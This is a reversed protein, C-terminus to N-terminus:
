GLMANVSSVLSKRQNYFFHLVVGNMLMGIIGVGSQVLWLHSFKAKGHILLNDDMFSFVISIHTQTDLYMSISLKMSKSSIGFLFKLLFLFISSFSKDIM